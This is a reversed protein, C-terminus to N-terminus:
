NKDLKKWKNINKQQKVARKLLEEVEFNKLYRWSGLKIDKVYLNEIKSRHLALVKKDIASCMKRVERNKGEHITIELRSMNKEKDIKLIRVKAKGHFTIKQKQEM